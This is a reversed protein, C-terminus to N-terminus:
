LKEGTARIQREWKGLKEDEADDRLITESLLYLVADAVDKATCDQEADVIESRALKQLEGVVSVKATENYEAVSRRLLKLCDLQHNITSASDVKLHDAVLIAAEILKTKAQEQENMTKGVEPYHLYNM